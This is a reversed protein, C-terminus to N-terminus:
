RRGASKRDPVPGLDQRSAEHSGLFGLVAASVEDPKEFHVLHGAGDIERIAAAPLLAAAKAAGAIPTVEDQRGWIVQVPVGARGLEAYRATFDSLPMHRLTSLLARKYGAYELQPRFRTELKPALSKDHVSRAIGSILVRNGLVQMLYDGVLPATLLATGPPEAVEFGAPALLTLSAVRTPRRLTFESAIIGGMSLAVLHVRGELGSKRLLADLQHDFLDLDYDVWPRDSWGRGYLDYVVTVYGEARLRKPLDGWVPSPTTLGHVFVVVEAPSTGQIEVCTHGDKLKVFTGPLGRRAIQGLPSGEGGFIWPLAALLAIAAVVLHRRKM